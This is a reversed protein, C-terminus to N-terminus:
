GEATSNPLSAPLEMDHMAASRVMIDDPNEIDDAYTYKATNFRNLGIPSIKNLTKIKYM